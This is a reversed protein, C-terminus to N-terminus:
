FQQLTKLLQLLSAKLDEVVKKDDGSMASIRDPIFCAEEQLGLGKETLKIMVSREDETSRERVILGNQEMRKLMPTLTGSDLALLEGLKKVTLTDQEWLLLLVLYQPYTVELKDLLPKYKKTMERSSAYLLFCLQDELVKEIKNQM